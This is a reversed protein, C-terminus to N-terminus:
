IYLDGHLKAFDRAALVEGAFSATYLWNLFLRVKKQTGAKQDCAALFPATLGAVVAAKMVTRRDFM